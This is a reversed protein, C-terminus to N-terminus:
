YSNNQTINLGGGKKKGPSFSFSTMGGIQSLAFGLFALVKDGLGAKPDKLMTTFAGWTPANEDLQKQLELLDKQTIMLDEQAKGTNVAQNNVQIQSGWLAIQQIGKDFEISPMSTMAKRIDPDLWQAKKLSRQINASVVRQQSEARKPYMELKHMFADFSGKNKFKPLIELAPEKGPNNEKWQDVDDITEGTEPDYIRNNSNKFFEDEARKRNNEIDQADTQADLNRIQAAILGLSSDIGSGSFPNVMPASQQMQPVQTNVLGSAGNQYMLDSNLGANQLREKQQAPSNYALNERFMALNQANTERAIQLNAKNTAAQSAANIGSGLLSAIAGFM